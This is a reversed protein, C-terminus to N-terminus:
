FNLSETLTAPTSHEWHLEVLYNHSIGGEGLHVYYKVCIEWASDPTHLVNFQM